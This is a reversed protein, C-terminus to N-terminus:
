KRLSDGNLVIKNFMENFRDAMRPGYLGGLKKPDCNTTAHTIMGKSIFLRYRAFLIQEMVNAKNGYSTVNTDEMGLDDITLGKPVFDRNRTRSWFHNISYKDIISFGSLLFENVVSMSDVFEFDPLKFRNYILKSYIMMMISKGTGYTGCILLGKDFSYKKNHTLFAKDQAFYQYVKEYVPRRVSDLEFKKSKQHRLLHIGLAEIKPVVDDFNPIMIMKKKLDRFKKEIM